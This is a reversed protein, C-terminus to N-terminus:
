LFRRPAAMGPAVGDAPPVAAGSTATQPAEGDLLGLIDDLVERVALRLGREDGRLGLSLQGQLSHYVYRRDRERLRERSGPPLLLGTILLRSQKVSLGDAGLNQLTVRVEGLFILNDVPEPIEGFRDVL